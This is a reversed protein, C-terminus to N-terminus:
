LYRGHYKEFHEFYQQKMENTSVNWESLERRANRVRKNPNFDSMSWCMVVCIMGVSTFGFTAFMTRLAGSSADVGQVMIIVCMVISVACLLTTFVATRRLMAASHQADAIKDLLRQVRMADLAALTEPTM